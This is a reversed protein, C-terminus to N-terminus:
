TRRFEADRLLLVGLFPVFNQCYECLIRRVSIANSYVGQWLFQDNDLRLQVAEKQCYVFSFNPSGDRKTKYVHCRNRWKTRMEVSTQASRANVIIHQDILTIKVLLLFTM